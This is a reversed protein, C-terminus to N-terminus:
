LMPQKTYISLCMAALCMCAMNLFNGDAGALM